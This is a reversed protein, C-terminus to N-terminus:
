KKKLTTMQLKDDQLFPQIASSIAEPEILPEDGQINVVVDCDLNQAVEAIRDTGSKHKESTMVAKGGFELVVDRIREDDTAIIVEDILDVKMSQRYVYWIVPKGHMEAIVKGPFRSSKYRAPIIGKVKM